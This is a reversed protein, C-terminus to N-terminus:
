AYDPGEEKILKPWLFHFAAGRGEDSDLWVKGGRAEVNKKVLALGIGAGEVKDRPQLTQFIEWIRSHFKKPIGPGDDQVVFEYFRDRNHARVSVHTDPRNSHKLANGLLNFFVREIRGLERGCGDFAALTNDFTPPDSSQAIADVAARHSRMAHELAPVFHEPRIQEFPPLGYPTDWTQLLPNDATEIM